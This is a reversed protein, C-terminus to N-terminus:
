FRMIYLHAKVHQVFKVKIFADQIKSWVIIPKLLIYMGEKVTKVSSIMQHDQIILAIPTMLKVSVKTPITDKKVNKVVLNISDLVSRMLLYVNEM